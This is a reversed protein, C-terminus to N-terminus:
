RLSNHARGRNLDADNAAVLDDWVLEIAQEQSLDTFRLATGDAVLRRALEVLAPMAADFYEVRAGGPERWLREMLPLLSGWAGIPTTLPGISEHVRDALVPHVASLDATFRWVPDAGAFRVRRVGAICAASWCLLCSELTTYLEYGDRQDVRLQALANVEAHALRSGALHNAPASSEGRRSRGRAVVTGDVAVVVAGVAPSGVRYSEWALAFAEKWPGELQSLPSFTM